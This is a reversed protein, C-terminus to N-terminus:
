KKRDLALAEPCVEFFLGFRQEIRRRVEEEDVVRAERAHTLPGFDCSLSSRSNEALKDVVDSFSARSSQSCYTFVAECPFLDNHSGELLESALGELYTRARERGVPRFTAQHFAQSSSDGPVAIARTVRFPASAESGSAEAGSAEAGSAELVVFDVFARLLDRNRHIADKATTKGKSLLLLFGRPDDVTPSLQGHVSVKRGTATQLTVPPLLRVARSNRSAHGVCARNVAQGRTERMNLLSAWDHLVQIHVSREALGLSGTPRIGRSEFIFAHHDYARELLSSFDGNEPHDQADMVADLFASRLLSIEDLKSVEFAEDQATLASDDTQSEEIGLLGSAAAQMPCELFRRLIQISLRLPEEHINEATPLGGPPGLIKRVFATKEGGLGPTLFVTRPLERSGLTRRIDAGLHLALRERVIGPPALLAQERGLPPENERGAPQIEEVTAQFAGPELYRRELLLRLEHVASAPELADGTLPHRAVYTVAFRDRASLFAELFLYLDRERPTVEGPLRKRARIDLSDRGSSDPFNGEGMGATFIMRFPIARLSAFTSIAVGRGLHRARRPLVKGLRGALIDYPVRYGYEVSSIDYSVLEQIERLISILDKSEDDSSPVLHHRVFPLLFRAWESLSMRAHSCVRIKFLLDRLAMGLTAASEIKDEPVPQVLYKQNEAPSVTLGPDSPDMFCGLVLRRIGQDWNVLDADIYTGEHDSHDAGYFVGLQECWTVWERPEIDPFGAAVSPHTLFTLVEARTVRGLPLSLLLLAAAVIRSDRSLTLGPFEFPIEGFENFVAEFHPRYAEFQSPPLLVAIEHFRTPGSSVAGWIEKAIAEVERRRSACLLVSISHDSSARPREERTGSSERILIGHQVRRLLTEPEHALPSEFADEFDCGALENLIRIQERGPRGWLRLADNETDSTLGFLDGNESTEKGIIRAPGTKRSAVDEWFEQCPNLAYVFVRTKQALRWLVRQSAQPLYPFAFFHIEPPLIIDKSPVASALGAAPTWIEGRGAATEQCHAHFLRYLTRQWQQTSSGPAPGNEDLWRALQDPRNEAYESFLGAMRRALQSKRRDRTSASKGSKVYAAVPALDEMSLANESSLLALLVGQIEEFRLLRLSPSSKAIVDLLFPEMERIDLDIAIGLQQALGHTIYASLAPSPVLLSPRYLLGARELWSNELTRALNELLNETRNSYFVTLPPQDLGEWFAGSEPDDDTRM